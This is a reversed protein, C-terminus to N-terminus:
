DNLPPSSPPFAGAVPRRWAAKRLRTTGDQETGPRSAEAIANAAAFAKAIELLANRQASTMGQFLELLNIAHREALLGISSAVVATDVGVDDHGYFYGIQVDLASAMLPLRGASVRSKGSEYKQVQQYAVGLKEALDIQTMALQRRRIRIRKGIEIDLATVERQGM